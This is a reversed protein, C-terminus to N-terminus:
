LTQRARLARVRTKTLRVSHLCSAIQKLFSGLTGKIYRAGGHTQASAVREVPPEAHKSHSLQARCEM